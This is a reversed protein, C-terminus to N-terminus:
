LMFGGGVEVNAGTVYNAAKSTLWLIADAIEDPTGTRGLPIRAALKPDLTDSAAHEHPIMGPSVVNVRVGFKAEELALSKAFVILASKAASYAAAERKARLGDLGTCGFFVLSGKSSRLLERAGRAVLFASEVNSSFLRRLTKSELEALPGSEYEGVAHVVHDLRGALRQISAFLERVSREDECDCRLAFEGFEERVARSSQNDSRWAVIARDGRQKLRRATALGLGRAAGTVLSVQNAGM